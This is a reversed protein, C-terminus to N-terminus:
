DMLPSDSQPRWRHVALDVRDNRFSVGEATLRARQELWAASSRPLSSAGRANLVRHWPLADSELAEALARGV